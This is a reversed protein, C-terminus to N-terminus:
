SEQSFPHRGPRINRQHCIRDACPIVVQFEM